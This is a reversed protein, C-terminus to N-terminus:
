ISSCKGSLREANPDACLLTNVTPAANYHSIQEEKLLQWIYPYEIKRLCYHTGRVATVAWPFTWGMAHFMPLTWLYHCRHAKPNWTNLGSEIVNGLSALYASRHTYEVGKPRATTGSTYALAVMSDEDQVQTELGLWGQGGLQTDYKLGEQVAQNYQGSHPGETVDTDTDVIIAVDPHSKRFGELLHEFEADVIISDVESHDFIYEIDDM